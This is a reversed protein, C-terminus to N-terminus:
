PMTWQCMNNAENSESVDGLVDVWAGYNFGYANAATIWFYRTVTENRAMPGQTIVIEGDPGGEWVNWVLLRMNTKSATYGINKYTVKFYYWDIGDGYDVPDDFPYCEILDFDPKAYPPDAHAPQGAVLVTTAVAVVALIGTICRRLTTRRSQPQTM